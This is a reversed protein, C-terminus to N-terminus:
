LDSSNDELTEKLEAITAESPYLRLGHATDELIAALDQITMTLQIPLILVRIEQQESLIHFHVHVDPM